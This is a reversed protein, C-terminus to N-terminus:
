ASSSSTRGATSWSPKLWLMLTGQRPAVNGKSSISLSQGPGVRLGKGWKGPALTAGHPTMAASGAAFDTATLSSFNCLLLTGDIKGPEGAVLSACSAPVLLAALCLKRM